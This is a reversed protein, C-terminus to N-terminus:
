EDVKNELAGLVANTATCTTSYPRLCFIKELADIQRHFGKRMTKEDTNYKECVRADLRDVNSESRNFPDTSTMHSPIQTYIVHRTQM